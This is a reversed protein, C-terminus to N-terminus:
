CPRRGEVREVTGFGRSVSKGIGIRDPLHFNVRFTGLFGLMEVGKLRTPWSRLGSADAILRTAVRHGFAKALSLCNGVLVRELLRQREAPDVLALYNHHNDQNLGLWPTRFRYALSESVEGLTERRRLLDSGLVPLTEEGLRAQDVSAWLRMVLECGEALGILHGTRDLVKFQVRPYDYHLGGDPRHHHLLVEDAYAAGFFGRLQSAEGPLLPRGFRLRYEIVDIPRCPQLEIM